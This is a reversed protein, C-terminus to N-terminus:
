ASETVYGVLNTPYAFGVQCTPYACTGIANSHRVDHVPTACNSNLVERAAHRYPNHVPCQGPLQRRNLMSDEAHFYRAPTQSQAPQCDLDTHNSNRVGEARKNPGTGHIAESFDLDTICHTPYRSLICSGLICYLLM